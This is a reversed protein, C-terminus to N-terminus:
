LKGLNPCKSTPRARPRRRAGRGARRCNQLIRLARSPAPRLRPTQGVLLLHCQAKLRYRRAEDRRCKRSFGLASVLRPVASVLTRAVM